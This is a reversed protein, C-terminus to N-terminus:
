RRTMTSGNTVTDREDNNQATVVTSLEGEIKRGLLWYTVMGIPLKPSITDRATLNFSGEKKLLDKTAETV